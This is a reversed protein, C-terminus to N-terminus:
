GKFIAGQSSLDAGPIATTPAVTSAWGLIQGKETAFLFRAAASKGGQSVVFATADGNFVTGTPGGPVDVTLAIKTGTATYLTSKSTGNDAVWWPTTPGASLGWANVLNADTTNTVLTQPNYSNTAAALAAAVAIAAFM